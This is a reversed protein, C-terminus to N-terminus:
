LLDKKDKDLQKDLTTLPIGQSLSLMDMFGGGVGGWEAGGLKLGASSVLRGM